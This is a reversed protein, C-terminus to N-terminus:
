GIYDTNNIKRNIKNLANERSANSLESVKKVSETEIKKIESELKNMNLNLNLKKDLIKLIEKSGRIGLYMPHAFTESLIAIGQMNRKKSLGVLLGTVGVIPGVIGYIKTSMKTDKSYKNTIEKDNSTCYLKPTEPMTQLGIGGLTIIEKCKLTECINLVADCFDYSSVEDIPQVDGVLLILDNKNKTKAYYIEITPLEVINKDNVFVSHPFHNSFLDYLKEAKLEEKIFDVTIKGVNGIGPLGEILVPDKLKPLTKPIQTIKWSM